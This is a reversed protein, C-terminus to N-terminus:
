KPLKKTDKITTEALKLELIVKLTGHIWRLIPLCADGSVTVFRSIRVELIKYRDVKRGIMVQMYYIPGNM